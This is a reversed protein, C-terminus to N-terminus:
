AGCPSRADSGIKWCRSSSRIGSRSARSTATRIAKTEPEPSRQGLVRRREDATYACSQAALSLAPPATLLGAHYPAASWPYNEAVETLGARVPNREACRLVTFLYREGSRARIM